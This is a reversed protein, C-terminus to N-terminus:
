KRRRRNAAVTAALGLALIVGYAPEPVVFNEIKMNGGLYVQGPTGPPDMQHLRFGGPDTTTLKLTIVATDFETLDFSWGMAMSMDEPGPITSNDLAAPNSTVHTFIDGFVYGPEDIEWSVGAPAPLGLAEGTENSFGNAAEDIEHDFFSAFTHPGAGSLTFVITGLGTGTDFSALNISGPVSALACSASGLSDYCAGDVNFAYEFLTTDARAAPAAGLLLLLAVTIALHLRM